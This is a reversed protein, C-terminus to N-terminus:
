PLAGDPIGFLLHKGTLLEGLALWLFGAALAAAILAFVGSIFKATM